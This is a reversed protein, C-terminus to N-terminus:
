NSDWRTCYRLYDYLCILKGIQAKVSPKVSDFFNYHSKIFEQLESLDIHAEPLLPILFLAVEPNNYVELIGSIGGKINEVEGRKKSYYSSPSFTNFNTGSAHQKVAEPIETTNIFEYENYFGGLRLYKFVPVYCKTKIIGPLLEHVVKKPDLNDNEFVIDKFLSYRNLGSYGIDAILQNSEADPRENVGDISEVDEIVGVGFVVDIDEDEDAGDIDRVFLRAKSDNQKVLRYVHDKLRRLIRAPFKREILGLTKFLQSYSGVKCEKMPIPIGDVSFPIDSIIPTIVDTHMSVFILRDQLLKLNESTLCHAISTLLKRINDDSISYGLFVVPHEVFITLLKAALYPNRENFRTYDETTLVISNPKLCCGHIKYIEGVEHTQSFLLEDQGVYPKYENFLSSLLTDWNTTIVGDIVAQKLLQIEAKVDDDPLLNASRERMYHAIEIKLASEKNIADAAYINRNSEFEPSSWWVNHFDEALISAVEPFISNGTARYYDYPKGTYVCFRRLLGEWDELGLYRRSFGSGVFLFPATHSNDLIEQLEVIASM